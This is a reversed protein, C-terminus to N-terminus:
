PVGIGFSLLIVEFPELRPQLRLIRVSTRIIFRVTVIAEM